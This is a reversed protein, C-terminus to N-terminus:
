FVQIWHCIAIILIWPFRGTIKNFTIDVHYCVMRFIEEGLCFGQVRADIRQKGLIWVKAASNRM